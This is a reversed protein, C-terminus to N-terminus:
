QLSPNGPSSNLSQGSSPGAAGAPRCLMKGTIRAGLAMEISGYYVNGEVAARPGLVLRGAVSVDGKISGNLRAHSARVEGEVVAGETMELHAEGEGVLRLNGRIRGELHLGGSFEVDGRITVTPGILTELPAAAKDRKWM